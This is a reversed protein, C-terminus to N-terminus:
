NERKELVRLKIGVNVHSVLFHSQCSRQISGKTKMQEEKEQDM